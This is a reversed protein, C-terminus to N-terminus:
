KRKVPERRLATSYLSQHIIVTDARLTMVTTHHKHRKIITPIIEPNVSSSEFYIKFFNDFTLLDYQVNSFLSNEITIEGHLFFFILFTSSDM